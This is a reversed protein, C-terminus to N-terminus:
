AEDSVVEVYDSSLTLHQKILDYSQQLRDADPNDYGFNAKCYVVVARKILPDTASIKTAHVGSLQLDAQAADILDQVEDDFANSTIRLRKKVETLM